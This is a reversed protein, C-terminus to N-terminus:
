KPFVSERVVDCVSIRYESFIRDRGAQQGAVHEPHNRWAALTEHSEFQVITVGEGDASAYEHFSVLGPMSTVMAYLKTGIAAAEREAGPPLRSRFVILVM